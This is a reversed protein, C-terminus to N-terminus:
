IIIKKIRNGKSDFNSEHYQEWEDPANNDALYQEWEDNM